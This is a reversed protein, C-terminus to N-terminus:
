EKAIGKLVEVAHPIAPLITELCENVAKPSGPLNIIISNKRIVAKARSLMAHPTKNLSKARMVEAFGPIEKEGVESTAEPTVDRHSVGTGGSTIILDINLSDVMEILKKKIIEKEDPIIEYKSVTWLNKKIIEIIAPGSEDKREGRFSRDSITLVGVNM